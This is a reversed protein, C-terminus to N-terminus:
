DETPNGDDPPIAAVPVRDLVIRNILATERLAVPEFLMATDREDRASTDSASAAPVAGEAVRKPISHLLDYLESM